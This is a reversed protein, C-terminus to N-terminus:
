FQKIHILRLFIEAQMKKKYMLHVINQFHYDQRLHQIYISKTQVIYPLLNKKFLQNIILIKLTPFVQNTNSTNVRYQVENELIQIEQTLYDAYEKLSSVHQHKYIQLYCSICDIHKMHEIHIIPTQKTLQELVIDHFCKKQELYQMQLVQPLTQQIRINSSLSNLQNILSNKVKQYYILSLNEQVEFDHIIEYMKNNMLWKIYSLYSNVNKQNSLLFQNSKNTKIKIHMQCIKIEGCYLSQNLSNSLEIAYCTICRVTPITICKNLVKEERANHYFCM